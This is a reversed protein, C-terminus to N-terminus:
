AEGGFDARSVPASLTVVRPSPAETHSLSRREHRDINEAQIDQCRPCLRHHYIGGGVLHPSEHCDPDFRGCLYCSETTM